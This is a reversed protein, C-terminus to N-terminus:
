TPQSYHFLLSPFLITDSPVFYCITAVSLNQHLQNEEMNSDKWLLVVKERYREGIDEKM